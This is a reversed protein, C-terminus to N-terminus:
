KKHFGQDIAYPQESRWDSDLYGEEELFETYTNIIDMIDSTVEKVIKFQDAWRANFAISQEADEKEMISYHVGDKQSETRMIVYRLM